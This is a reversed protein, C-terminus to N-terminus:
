RQLVVQKFSVDLGARMAVVYIGNTLGNPYWEVNYSGAPLKENVLQKVERGYLDFITIQVNSAESLSYNITTSTNFPNPYVAKLEGRRKDVGLLDEVSVVLSDRSLQIHDIYITGSAFNDEVTKWRFALWGKETNAPTTFNFDYQQYENTLEFIAGEEGLVNRDADFSGMTMAIVGTSASDKKAYFSGFYEKGAELPMNSDWNDLNRDGLTEDAAVYTVKVAKEGDVVHQPDTVIEAMSGLSNPVEYFRWFQLDQEFSGNFGALVNETTDGVLLFQYYDLVTQLAADEDYSAVDNSWWLLSGMPLNDIKSRVDAQYSFDEIFDTVASIGDGEETEVGPVTTPDLDGFAISLVDFDGPNPVGYNRRAMRAWEDGIEQNPISKTVMDPDLTNDYNSEAIVGEYQDIINQTYASIFPPPVSTVPIPLDTEDVEASWARYSLPYDGVDNFGGNYYKDLFPSTFHINNSSLWKVDEMEPVFGHGLQWLNSDIEMLNTIGVPHGGTAANAAQSQLQTEQTSRCEGEWNCNIFVNNTFYAEKYQEFFFVYKPTNVITNHDFFVFNIPNNKGFFTLGSNSVTTNQVVLSDIPEGNDGRAVVAFNFSNAFQSNDRFYCNKLFINAPGEVQRLNYLDGALAFEHVMDELLLTQETRLLSFLPAGKNTVTRAPWYLNKLTLSGHVVHTFADGGDRPSSLIVPKKGGEEGIITLTANTEAIDPGGFQIRSEMYYITNAKLMYVRNPNIRSGDALVDENITKELLGINDIGGEIVIVEQEAPVQAHLFATTLILM